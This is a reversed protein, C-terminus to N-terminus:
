FLFKLFAIMGIAIGHGMLVRAMARQSRGPLALAGVRGIGIEILCQDRHVSGLWVAIALVLIALALFLWPKFGFITATQNAINHSPSPSM